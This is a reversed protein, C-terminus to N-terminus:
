GIEVTGHSNRISIEGSHAGGCEVECGPVGASASENGVSVLVTNGSCELGASELSYARVNGDGLACIESAISSIDGAAMRAKERAYVTGEASKITSLAALSIGLLSIGVAVLLLYEATVQGKMM